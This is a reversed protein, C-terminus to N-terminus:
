KRLVYRSVNSFWLFIKDRVIHSTYSSIRIEKDIIIEYKARPFPTSTSNNLRNFSIIFKALQQTSPLARFDM